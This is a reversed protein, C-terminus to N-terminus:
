NKGSTLIKSTKSPLSGPIVYDNVRRPRLYTEMRLIHGFYGPRRWRTEEHVSIIDLKEHLEQTGIRQELRVGYVWRVM